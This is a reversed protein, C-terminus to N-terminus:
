HWSKRFKIETKQPNFYNILRAHYKTRVSNEKKDFKISKYDLDLGDLYDFVEECMYAQSIVDLINLQKDSLIHKVSEQRIQKKKLRAEGILYDFRYAAEVLRNEGFNDYYLTICLEMFQRLYISMEWNYVTNYFIQMNLVETNVIKSSEFLYNHIAVYKQSYHFFNLGEFIPQRLSFPYEIKDDLNINPTNVLSKRDEGWRLFMAQQNKLNPFLPYECDAQKKNKKTQKQFTQLIADKNEFHINRNGRWNRGRWLIKDFIYGLMIDNNSEWSKAVDDQTVESKISRLHYAKLFDTAGLKVARNNQTDFFTFADDESQTIIVTFRIKDLFAISKLKSIELSKKALYDRITVINYVSQQSNYTISNGNPLSKDSLYQLILLTTLRQQGDIVEYQLEEKNDYLLIYGLYYEDEAKFPSDEGQFFFEQFDKILDDVKTTDWVYPRQYEPIIIPKKSKAFLDKFTTEEIFLSTNKTKSM